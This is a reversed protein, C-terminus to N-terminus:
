WLGHQILFNEIGKKDLKSFPDKPIAYNMILKQVRKHSKRIRSERRLNTALYLLIKIYLTVRQRRLILIEEDKCKFSRLLNISFDAFFAILSQFLLKVPFYRITMLLRNRVYLYWLFCGIKHASTIGGIKHKFTTSTIGITKYGRCLAKCCLDLEDYYMFLEPSFELRDFLERKVMMGSGVAWLVTVMRTKDADLLSLEKADVGVLEGYNTVLGGIIHAFVDDLNKTREEVGQAIGVLKNCEMISVIKRIYDNSLVVDPNMFLLYKVDDSVHKAALNNGLCFGYNKKLEVIKIMNGYRNSVYEISGDNSGNDAFIVEFNKYSQTVASGISEDLLKGLCRRGNYNLIIVAVNSSESITRL